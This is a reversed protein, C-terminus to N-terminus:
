SADCRLVGILGLVPLNLSDESKCEQDCLLDSEKGVGFERLDDGQTGETDGSLSGFISHCTM